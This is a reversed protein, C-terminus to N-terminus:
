EFMCNRQSVAADDTFFAPRADSELLTLEVNEFRVNDVHRVYFGYAPLAGKFMCNEPYGAAPM